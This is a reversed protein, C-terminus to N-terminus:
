TLSLPLPREPCPPIKGEDMWAIGALGLVM